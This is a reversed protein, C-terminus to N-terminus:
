RVPAMGRGGGHPHPHRLHALPQSVGAVAQGSADFVDVLGTVHALRISLPVYTGVRSAQDLLTSRVFAVPAALAFPAVTVCFGVALGALYARTRGPRQTRTILCAALLVVAPVAAWFKVTAAFGLALGAWALRGPPWGAM